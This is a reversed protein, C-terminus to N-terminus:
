FEEGAAARMRGCRLVMAEDMRFGFMAFGFDALPANARERLSGFSFRGVEAEAIVALGALGRTPGGLM